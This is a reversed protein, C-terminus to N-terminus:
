NRAIEPCTGTPTVCKLHARTHPGTEAGPPPCEPKGRRLRRPRASKGRKAIDWRQRCISLPNWQLFSLHYIFNLFGKAERAIGEDYIQALASMHYNLSGRSPEVAFDVLQLWYSSELGQDEPGWCRHWAVNALMGVLSEQVKPFLVQM